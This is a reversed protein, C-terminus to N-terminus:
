IITLIQPDTRAVGGQRVKSVMTLLETMLGDVAVQTALLDRGPQDPVVNYPCITGVGRAAEDEKIIGYQVLVIATGAHIM